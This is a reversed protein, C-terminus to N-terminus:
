GHTDQAQPRGALYSAAPDVAYRGRIATRGLLMRFRMNDRATLSIEVPWLAEGLQVTTRIFMRQERHGGSDTVPRLDLLQADCAVATRSDRQLPHVGFRVRDAGDRRYREVFYAHLASSRAGTDVKAKLRAIGLEPLALWERWGLLPLTARAGRQPSNSQPVPNASQPSFEASESMARKYVLAPTV